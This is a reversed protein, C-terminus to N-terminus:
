HDWDGGPFMPRGGTDKLVHPERSINQSERLLLGSKGVRYSPDSQTSRKIGILLKM